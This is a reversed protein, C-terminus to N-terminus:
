KGPAASLKLRAMHEEPSVLQERMRDMHLMEDLKGSENLALIDDYDGAVNTLKQVRGSLWKAGVATCTTSSSLPCSAFVPRRRAPVATLPWM